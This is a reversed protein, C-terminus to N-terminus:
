GDALSVEYLTTEFDLISITCLFRSNEATLFIFIAYGLKAFFIYESLFNIWDSHQSLM